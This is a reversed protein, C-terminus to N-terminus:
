WFDIHAVAPNSVCEEAKQCFVFQQAMRHGSLTPLSKYDLTQERISGLTCLGIEIACRGTGFDIENESQWATIQPGDFDFTTRRGFELPTEM